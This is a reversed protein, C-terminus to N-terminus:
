DKSAWQSLIVLGLLRLRNFAPRITGVPGEPARPTALYEVNKSSAIEKGNARLAATM